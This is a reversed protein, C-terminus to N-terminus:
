GPGPAAWAQPPRLTLIADGPIVRLHKNGTLSRGRLDAPGPGRLGPLRLVLTHNGDFVQGCGGEGGRGNARPESVRDPLPPM